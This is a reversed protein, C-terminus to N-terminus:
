RVKYSIMIVKCSKTVVKNSKRKEIRSKRFYKDCIERVKESKIIDMTSKTVGTNSRQKAKNSKVGFQRRNSHFPVM